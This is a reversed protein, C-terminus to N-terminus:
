FIFYLLHFRIAINQLSKNFTSRIILKMIVNKWTFIFFFFTDRKRGVFNLITNRLTIQSIKNKLITFRIADFYNLFIINKNSKLQFHLQVKKSLLTYAYMDNKMSSCYLQDLYKVFLYFFYLCTLM